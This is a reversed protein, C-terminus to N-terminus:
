GGAAETAAKVAAEVEALTQIDVDYLGVRTGEHSWNQMGAEFRPNKVLNPTDKGDPGAPQITVDAIWIQAADRNKFNFAIRSHEPIAKAASFPLRLRKWSTSVHVDTRLGFLGWPPTSNKTSVSLQTARDARVWFTLLYNQEPDLNISNQYVQHRWPDAEVADQRNMRIASGQPEAAAHSFATGAVLALLALSRRLLSLKM